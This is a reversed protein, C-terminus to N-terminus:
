GNEGQETGRTIGVGGAPEQGRVRVWGGIFDICLLFFVFFGRKPKYVYIM